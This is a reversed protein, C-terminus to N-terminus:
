TEYATIYLLLVQAALFSAESLTKLMNLKLSKFPQYFVIICLQINSLLSLSVLQLRPYDELVVLILTMMLKRVPDVM